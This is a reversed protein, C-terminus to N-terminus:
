GVTSFYKFSQLMCDRIILSKNPRFDNKPGCGNTIDFLEKQTYPMRSRLAKSSKGLISMMIQEDKKQTPKCRLALIM